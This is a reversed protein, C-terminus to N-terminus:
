HYYFSLDQPKLIPFDPSSMPQYKYEQQLFKLLDTTDYYYVHELQRYVWERASVNRINIDVNFFRALSRFDPSIRILTYLLSVNDIMPNYEPKVYSQAINVGGTLQTYSRDFDYIVPISSSQIYRGGYNILYMGNLKVHIINRWSLDYHTFAYTQQAIDLALYLQAYLSIVTQKNLSHMYDFDMDPGPIYESMIARKGQHNIKSFTYGYTPLTNRLNNLLKGVQYEHDISGRGLGSIDEKVFVKVPYGDKPSIDTTYVPIHQNISTYTQPNTFTRYGQADPVSIQEIYTTLADLSRKSPWYPYM